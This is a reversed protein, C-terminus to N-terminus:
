SVKVSMFNNFVEFFKQKVQYISVPSSTFDSFM